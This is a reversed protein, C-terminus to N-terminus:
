ERMWRKIWNNFKLKNNDDLWRDPYETNSLVIGEFKEIIYSPSKGIIGDHNEMLICFAVLNKMKFSLHGNRNRAITVMEKM